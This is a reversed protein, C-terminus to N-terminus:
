QAKTATEKSKACNTCGAQGKLAPTSGPGPTRPDTMGPPVMHPPHNYDPKARSPVQGSRFSWQTSRYIAGSLIGLAAVWLFIATICGFFRLSREATKSVAFLVFFSITLLVAVPMLAALHSLKLMFM